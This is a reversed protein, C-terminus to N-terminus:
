QLHTVYSIPLIEEICDLSCRPLSSTRKGAVVLALYQVLTLPWTVQLARQQGESVQSLKLYITNRFKSKPLPHTINKSLHPVNLNGFQNHLVSGNSFLFHIHFLLIGQCQRHLCQVSQKITTRRPLSSGHSCHTHGSLTCQGEYSPERSLM